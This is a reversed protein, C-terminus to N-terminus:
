FFRQAMWEDLHVKSHDLKSGGSIGKLGHQRAPRQMYKRATNKSVGIERGIAYISKGKAALKEIM